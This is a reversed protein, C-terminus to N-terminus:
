RRLRKVERRLQVIEEHEEFSLGGRAQQKAQASWDYLKKGHSGLDRVLEAITTDKAM